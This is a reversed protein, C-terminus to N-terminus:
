SPLGSERIAAFIRRREAPHAYEEAMERLRRADFRRTRLARVLLGDLGSTDEGMHRENHLLDVIFWEIVPPSPFRVRRLWIRHGGVTMRGTHKRNYVLSMAFMQTTGLGLANWFYPGTILFDDCGLFGRLLEPTTPGMLGFATPVPAYYLGHHPQRLVGQEVLRKAWRSPNATFARLESTRYVRGPTLAPPARM